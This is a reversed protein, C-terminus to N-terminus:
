KKLLEFLIARKNVSVHLLLFPFPSCISASNCFVLKSTKVAHLLPAKFYSNNLLNLLSRPYVSKIQSLPSSYEPEKFCLSCGSDVDSALDLVLSDTLNTYLSSQRRYTCHDSKVHRNVSATQTIKHLTPSYSALPSWETMLIQKEMPKWHHMVLTKKIKIYMGYM